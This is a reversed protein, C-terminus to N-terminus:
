RFSTVECAAKSVGETTPISAKDFKTGGAPIHPILAKGIDIAREEETMFVCDIFVSSVDQGSTNTVRLVLQSIGRDATFNDVEIVIGSAMAPTAAAALALAMVLKKM